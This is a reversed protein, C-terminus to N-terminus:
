QLHNKLKKKTELVELQEKNPEIIGSEQKVVKNIEKVSATEILEKEKEIAILPIKSEEVIEVNGDNLDVLDKSIQENEFSLVNQHVYDHLLTRDKVITATKSLEKAFLNNDKKNLVVAKILQLTSFAPYENFILDLNEITFDKSIELKYISNIIHEKTIKVM